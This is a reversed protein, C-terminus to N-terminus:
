ATREQAVGPGSPGRERSRESPKAAGTSTQGVFGAAAERTKMEADYSYWFRLTAGVFGFIVGVIMLIPKIDLAGDALYGLGGFIAPAAAFEFARALAEGFGNNLERRERLERLDM